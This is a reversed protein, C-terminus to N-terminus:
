REKGDRDNVEANERERERERERVGGEGNVIPDVDITGVGIIKDGFM